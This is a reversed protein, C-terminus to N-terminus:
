VCKRVKQYFIEGTFFLFVPIKELGTCQSDFVITMFWLQVFLSQRLLSTSCMLVHVSRMCVCVHLCVCVYVGCVCLHVCMRLCLSVVFATLFSCVIFSCAM